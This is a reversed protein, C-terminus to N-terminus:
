FRILWFLGPLQVPMQSAATQSTLDSRLHTCKKKRAWDGPKLDLVPRIVIIRWLVSIIFNNAIGACPQMEDVWLGALHKPLIAFLSSSRNTEIKLKQLLGTM